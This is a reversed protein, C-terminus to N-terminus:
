GWYVGLEERVEGGRVGEGGEVVGEDLGEGVGVGLEGRAGEEFDEGAEHM